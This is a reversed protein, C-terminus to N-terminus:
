SNLLVDTRRGPRTSPHPRTAAPSTPTSTPTPTETAGTRALWDTATSAEPLCWMVKPTGATHLAAEGLFLPM